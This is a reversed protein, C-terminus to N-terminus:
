KVVLFRNYSIIKMKKWVEMDEPSSANQYLAHHHISDYIAQNPWNGEVMFRMEKASDNQIIWLKYGADPYGISDIAKNINEFISFVVSPDIGVTDNLYTISKLTNEVQNISVPEKSKQTCSGFIVLLILFLFLYNKM